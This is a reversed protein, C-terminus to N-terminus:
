SRVDQWTDASTPIENYVNDRALKVNMNKHIYEFDETTYGDFRYSKTSYTELAKARDNGGDGHGLGSKGKEKQFFHPRTKVGACDCITKITNEANFLLDEYRVILRPTNPALDVYAQNWESWLHILSKYKYHRDPQWAVTVGVGIDVPSPCGPKIPFSAAYRHRCMSKMWTTPDKVVMVPLVQSVNTGVLSPAFHRGRWQVPNHKGWPVQWIMDTKGQEFVGNMRLLSELLNTGTNFLGAPALIIRNGDKHLSDRFASCMELGMIVPSVRGYMSPLLGVNDTVISSHSSATIEERVPPSDVINDLSLRSDVPNDLSVENHLQPPPVNLTASAKYDEPEMLSNAPPGPLLVVPTTRVVGADMSQGQRLKSKHRIELEHRIISEAAHFNVAILAVISLTLAIFIASFRFSENRELVSDRHKM